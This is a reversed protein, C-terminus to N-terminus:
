MEFVVKTPRGQCAVYTSQKGRLERQTRGFANDVLVGTNIDHVQGVFCAEYQEFM